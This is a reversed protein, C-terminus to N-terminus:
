PALRALYSAELGPAPATEFIRWLENMTQAIYNDLRLHADAVAADITCYTAPDTPDIQAALAAGVFIPPPSAAALTRVIEDVIRLMYGDLENHADWVAAELSRRAPAQAPAVPREVIVALPANM